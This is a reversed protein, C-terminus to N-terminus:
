SRGTRAQRARALGDELVSAPVRSGGEHARQVAAALITEAEVPDTRVLALVVQARVHNVLGDKELLAELDGIEGPPVGTKALLEAAFRGTEVHSDTDYADEDGALEILRPAIVATAARLDQEGGSHVLARLLAEEEGLGDGTASRESPPLTPIRAFAKVLDPAWGKAPLWAIESAAQKRVAPSPDKLAARLLGAQDPSAKSQRVVELRVLPSADSRLAALRPGLARADLKGLAAIAAARVRPEPDALVAAVASSAASGCRELLGIADTRADLPASKEGALAALPAVSAAAPVEAIRQRAWLRKSSDGTRLAAVLENVNAM